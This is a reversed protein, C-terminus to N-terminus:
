SPSKVKRFTLGAGLTRLGGEGGFPRLWRTDFRIGIRDSMWVTAGGGVQWGVGPGCCDPDTILSVGGAIFPEVRALRFVHVGGYVSFLFMHLREGHPHRPRPSTRFFLVAADGGLMLGPQSIQEGGGAIYSAWGETDGPGARGLALYSQTQSQAFAGSALLHICGIVCFGTAISM